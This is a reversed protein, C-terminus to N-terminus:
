PRTVPAPDRQGLEAEAYQREPAEPPFKAIMEQLVRQREEEQGSLAYAKALQPYVGNTGEWQPYNYVVQAYFGAAERPNDLREMQLNGAALLMAPADPHAPEDFAKKSYEDVLRRAEEEPTEAVPPPSSEAQDLLQRLEVGSQEPLASEPERVPSGEGFLLGWLVVAGLVAFGYVAGRNNAIWEGARDWM